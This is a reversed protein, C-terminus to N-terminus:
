YDKNLFREGTSSIKCLYEALFDIGRNPGFTTSTNKEQLKLTEITLKKVYQCSIM